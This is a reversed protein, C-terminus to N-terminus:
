GGGFVRIDDYNDLAGMAEKTALDTVPAGKRGPGDETSFFIGDKGSSVIMYRGRPSSQLPKTAEGFAPNRLLQAFNRIKAQDNAGDLASYAGGTPAVAKLQKSQSLGLGPSGLYPQLGAFRGGSNSVVIFQPRDDPRGCLPGMNRISRLYLLPNGWADRLGPIKAIEADVGTTTTPDGTETTIPTGATNVKGAIPQLDAAKPAFFPPYQKGNIRPGEGIKGPNIKVLYPSGGSVNFSVETWGDATRLADYSTQDFDARRVGGGMLELLANETSSFQPDGALIDDPVLGPYRGIEQQFSDCAKSFEQMLGGTQTAKAREQVKGLAPLLIGVLLAIIGITVLLEVLTFGRRTSPHM